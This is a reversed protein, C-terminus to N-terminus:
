ERLKAEEIEGEAAESIERLITNIDVGEMLMELAGGEGSINVYQDWQSQQEMEVFDHKFFAKVNKDDYGPVDAGFQDIVEEDTVVIGSGMERAINLQNEKSVYETLVQFAADKNESYNSIIMPTTELQPATNPLHDWVPLPVLDMDKKYEKDGWDQGLYIHYAITMGVQKYAFEYSALVNDPQGPINVFSEMLSLYDHFGQKKLLNVEGTEPDTMNLGLQRLPDLRTTTQPNFTLGVYDDGDRTTTMKAALEFTEEWTMPEEPDPYPLGFLDFVEKNYFLAKYATGDPFGALSGDKSLSRIYNIVAPHLQNLDFGYKEVMDDLPYVVDYEKM